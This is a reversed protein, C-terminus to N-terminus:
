EDKEKFHGFEAREDRMKNKRDKIENKKEEDVKEVNYFLSEYDKM